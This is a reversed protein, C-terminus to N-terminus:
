PRQAYQIWELCLGEPSLTPGTRARDLSALGERVDAPTRQGLGVQMITGAVIRVMNWLFGNGEIELRYRPAHAHEVRVVGCRFVRRVTSLRGHGAAAFAAFDHEGVLADAAANMADLDLGDRTWVHHVFRRDWLPREHGCHFTYSYAKRVAGAIPDFDPGVAEASLVQVDEPLRSNIAMVLRDVGRELPWGQGRVPPAASERPAAPQTAEAPAIPAALDDAPTPTAPHERPACTFAAVQGRAHVGSDTRSAGILEVQERVVDRVAQQVTEQVTRLMLLGDRTQHAKGRAILDLANPSDAKLTQRQWGHFDTGDYAITLKYRPM